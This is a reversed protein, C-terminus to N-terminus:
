FAGGLVGTPLSIAAAESFFFYSIIAFGIGTVAVKIINKKNITKGQAKMFFLIMSIMFIATSLVYGLIEFIAGYALISILFIVTNRKFLSRLEVEIHEKQRSTRIIQVVILVIMVVGIVRPMMAPGCYPDVISEGFTSVNILIAIPIIM